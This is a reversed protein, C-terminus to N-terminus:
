PKPSPAAAPVPITVSGVANSGSDFVVCRFAKLNEEIKLDNAFPVGQQLAQSRQQDSYHLDLPIIASAEKRGDSQYGIVALRLHATYQHEERAIVVDNADIRVALHATGASHPDPSLKARLGIEAADFPTSAVADIARRAEAGPPEPHAYYGSKAQIRVGKRSCSVRLKHFKGDWHQVPPYYGIQYGTRVDNMAQRIAQGIDKGADPRGGTLGAVEDLTEESGIGDGRGAGMADPSGMMVQRVPYVAVGSLGLHESLQRLPQTFDVFDGTDSRRPGLSIPVGDTIWVLNKRGPVKSLEVSLEELATYTLQVRVAVDIDVPRVQMFRRMAADMLSKAQRTWPAAQPGSPPDAAGPLGRVAYLRGNLTLLYLYLYDATELSQLNHALQDAAFARTEFRENLMDLLIVTAHPINSRSRNSVENPALAPPQRLRADFHRFFAIKQPRGADTVRFDELTLGSVPQGHADVAVVDLDVLRERPPSEGDGALPALALLLGIAIHLRV